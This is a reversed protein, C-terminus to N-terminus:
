FGRVSAEKSGRAVFCPLDSSVAVGVPNKPNRCSWKGSQYAGRDCYACDICRRVQIPKGLYKTTFDHKKEVM